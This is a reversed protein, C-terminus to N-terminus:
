QDLSGRADQTLYIQLAEASTSDRIRIYQILYINKSFFSSFFIFVCFSDHDFVLLKYFHFSPQLDHVCHNQLLKNINCDKFRNSQQTKRGIYSQNFPHVSYVQSTGRLYKFDSFQQYSFVKRIKTVVCSRLIKRNHEGLTPLDMASLTSIGSAQLCWSCVFM